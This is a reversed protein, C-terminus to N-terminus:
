LGFRSKNSNWLSTIQGSDLAQSYIDVKALLGGWYQPADWRRMLRIGGNSSLAPTTTNETNILTNDVYLKVATGDYTGM